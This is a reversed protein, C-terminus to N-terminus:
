LGRLLLIKEMGLSFVIDLGALFAAVGVSMLVVILSHTLAQKRTPWVVRKLEQFSDRFYQLIRSPVSQTM